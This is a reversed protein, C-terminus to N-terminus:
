VQEDFSQIWAQIEDPHFRVARPTIRLPRLKGAQVARQITRRSVGCLEAVERYSLLRIGRTGNDLM